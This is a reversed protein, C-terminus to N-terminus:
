RGVPDGDLQCKAYDDIYVTMPLHMLDRYLGIKFAFRSPSPYGSAADEPYATPGTYDAAVADDIWARILGHQWPSYRLQFRFSTWRGRLDVVKRDLTVARDASQRTIRLEGAVYRLAVVPSNDGCADANECYQKWQAVVLRTPVIPFDKAFYISFKHEYTINESSFLSPSELLEDRENARSRGSGPEYKDRSRVTIKVAGRGSRVIDSQMTVAEPEYRDRRWLNSLESTEFGDRVDIRAPQAAQSCWSSYPLMWGLVLVAVPSLGKSHAGKM